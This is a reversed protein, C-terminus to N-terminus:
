DINWYEDPDGDFITDIDSNSYGMVDHAYSGSYDGNYYPKSSSSGNYFFNSPIPLSPLESLDEILKDNSYDNTEILNKLRYFLEQALELQRQHSIDDCDQHKSLYDKIITSKTLNDSLYNRQEYSM